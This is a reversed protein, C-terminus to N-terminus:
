CAELHECCWGYTGLLALCQPGLESRMQWWARSAGRRWGHLM